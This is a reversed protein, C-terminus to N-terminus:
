PTNGLAHAALQGIGWCIVTGLWGAILTELAARLKDRQTFRAKGVGVAVLAAGTLGISAILAWRLPLFLYPLLPVAAACLYSAGVVLGPKLASEQPAALGLEESMMVDVWRKQNETLVEVVRELDDGEFGKKRYIERLEDRELHPVEHVEREERARERRYLDREARAGLFAGLGMSLAGAFMESLGALLVLRRTALSASVGAVFALVTVLGDSTGFVFNRLSEGSGARHWRETWSSYRSPQPHPHDASDPASM